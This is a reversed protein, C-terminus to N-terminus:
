QNASLAIADEPCIEECIQCGTCLSLFLPAIAWDKTVEGQKRGDRPYSVFVGQPCADLCKRCERPSTCKTSDWTIQIM